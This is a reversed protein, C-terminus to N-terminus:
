ENFYKLKEFNDKSLKFFNFFNSNDNMTSKEFRVFIKICEFLLFHMYLLHVFLILRLTYYKPSPNKQTKM